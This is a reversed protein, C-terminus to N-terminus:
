QGTVPVPPKKSEAQKARNTRYARMASEISKNIEDQMNIKSTDIGAATQAKIDGDVQARAAIAVKAFFDMEKIDQMYNAFGSNEKLLKFMQFQEPGKLTTYINLNATLQQGLMRAKEEPVGAKIQAVQYVLSANSVKVDHELQFRELRASQALRAEKDAMAYQNQSRLDNANALHAESEFLKEKQRQNLEQLRSYEELGLQGAEGVAAGFRPNKNAMLGLSFKMLAQYPAQESSQTHAKQLENLQKRLETNPNPFLTEYGKLIAASETKTNGLALDYGKTDFKSDEIKKNAATLLAERAPGVENIAANQKALLDNIRVLNQDPPATDVNEVKGAAKGAATKANEIKAAERAKEALERARRTTVKEGTNQDYKDAFISSLSGLTINNLIDSGLGLARIGTDKVGEMLPGSDGREIGFRTRFDETPTPLTDAFATYGALALPTKGVYKGVGSALRGLGSSVSRAGSLTSKAASGVTIPPKPPPTIPQGM